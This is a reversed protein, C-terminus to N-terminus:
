KGSPQRWQNARINDKAKEVTEAIRAMRTEPKKAQLIWELIGRKVSKPFADFHNRATKSSLFANDLDPPIELAEVTDLKTWQGSAKAAEVVLLGAPMMLDEAMLREVRDRNLKSWASKPKRPSLLLMSRRADLKRPLSDVWGFCLAEEVVDNYAVHRPDPKKWTVLWISANQTHHKSLWERLAKRTTVEVRQYHEGAM